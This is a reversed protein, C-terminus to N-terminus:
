FLGRVGPEREAGWAEAEAAGEAPVGLGTGEKGQPSM